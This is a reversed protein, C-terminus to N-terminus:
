IYPKQWILYAARQKKKPTLQKLLAMSDTIIKDTQIQKELIIGLIKIMEMAESFNSIDSIWVPFQQSLQEIQEQQNEEKNAIILDPQLAIVSEINVNKTGGIKPIPRLAEKPHVCFKTRGIINEVLGLDYLLETISPVLSIIRKPPDPLIIKRDLQDTHETPM